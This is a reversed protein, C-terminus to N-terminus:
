PGFQGVKGVRACAKHWMQGFNKELFITARWNPGIKPQKDANALWGKGGSAFKVFFDCWYENIYTV